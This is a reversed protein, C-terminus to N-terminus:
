HACLATVKRYNHNRPGHAYDSACYISNVADTFRREAMMRKADDVNLKVSSAMANATWTSVDEVLAIAAELNKKYESMLM